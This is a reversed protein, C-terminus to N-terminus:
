QITLLWGENKKVPIEEGVKFTRAAQFGEIPDATITAKKPNIGLKKWDIDLKVSTDTPNWSAISVLAKGPKQYVTTLVNANNTKVPIDKVWYGIMKSDKLGFHDWEKWFPRPDSKPSWGLRNTMGYIMGRWPNGNNQLMEGMLGFPIGSVETLFFAPDNHEYDFYEGFWLRNLYPFHEMYLNASNNFGDREDFQNASHLDIIGPHGNQTLVRKVRKMTVRDFAVDDLYLGDIGINKVLWNLGEVYYNHWRNMGSNIIAADHFEPVYWAAIYDNHLHEQLWSYGGGKGASFVEHGLSRVPYLEYMRNSVERITNYIKVKLGTKHADDIYDKMQKTAVFPYNIYPNIFTGHHINIINADAAKVTDIPVYKHYFRNAWQWNTDIPHFPTILLHFNYYLTEGKKMTRAGSYNKVLVEKKNQTIDIGGKNENGWSSPLILPKQLYFNTNLPRSYNQDRLSFQLGANVNGMWAGDQNKKAVDWKWKLDQSLTGGKEGLGMLYKSAETTFPIDMNIDQLKTDKLATVKVQYSMFGDFELTGSIEVKLNQNEDTAHWAYKGEEKQDTIPETTSFKEPNGNQDIFHFAIPAALIQNPKKQYGTMADDFYTEIKAPLGNKALIVKRGLISLESKREDYVVPTYPKIVTNEQALTSNLWPLRTMKWPEDFSQNKAIKDSITLEVEISQAPTNQPTVTIKATYLGAPINSPIEFGCWLPQIKGQPVNVTFHLPKDDYSTGGLNICTFDLNSDPVSQGNFTLDSATVKLDQLNKDKAWVGIQFAYFEGQDSNDKIGALSYGSTTWRQPIAQMQIPYQRLEPFLVYSRDAVTNKLTQVEAATAMVQMPAMSNFHDVSEIRLFKALIAKSNDSTNAITKKLYVAQPYNESAELKYPLYYVYYIGKGSNPNFLLTGEEQNIKVYSSVENQKQTASDVVYIRQSSTMKLNRWPIVVKAVTTNQEVQVVARQTGLADPNWLQKEPPYIHQAKLTSITMFLLLYIFLRFTKM